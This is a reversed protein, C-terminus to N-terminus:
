ILQKGKWSDIVRQAAKDASENMHERLWLYAMENLTWTVWDKGTEKMIKRDIAKKFNGFSKDTM